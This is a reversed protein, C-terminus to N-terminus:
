KASGTFRKRFTGAFYDKGKLSKVLFEPFLSGDMYGIGAGRGFVLFMATSKKAAYLPAPKGAAQLLLAPPACLSACV